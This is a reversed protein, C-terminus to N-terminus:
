FIGNSIQNQTHLPYLFFRNCALKLSGAEAGPAEAGERLPQYRWHRGGTWVHSQKGGAHGYVRVRRGDIQLALTNGDRRLLQVEIANGQADTLTLHQGQRNVEFERVADGAALKLKV